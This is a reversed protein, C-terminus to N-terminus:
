IPSILHVPIRDTLDHHHAATRGAPHGRRRQDPMQVPRAFHPQHLGVLDADDTDAFGRHRVDAREIRLCQSQVFGLEDAGRLAGELEADLEAVPRADTVTVHVPEAHDPVIGTRGREVM